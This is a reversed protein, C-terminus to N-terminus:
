EILNLHGCEILNTKHNDVQQTIQVLTLRLDTFTLSWFLVNDEWHNHQIGIDTLETKTPKERYINSISDCFIVKLKVTTWNYKQM